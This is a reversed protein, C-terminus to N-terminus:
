EKGGVKKLEDSFSFCVLHDSRPLMSNMNRKISENLSFCKRCIYYPIYHGLVLSRISPSQLGCLECVPKFDGKKPTTTDLLIGLDRNLSFRLKEITSLAAKLFDGRTNHHSNASRSLHTSISEIYSQYSHKKIPM